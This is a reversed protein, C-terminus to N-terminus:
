NGWSFDQSVTQWPLIDVSMHLFYLTADDKPPNVPVIEINEGPLGVGLGAIGNINLKYVHNRVIAYLDETREIGKTYYGYGNTYKLVRMANDPSNKLKYWGTWKSWAKLTHTNSAITKGDTTEPTLEDNDPDGGMGIIADRESAVVKFQGADAIVWFTGNDDCIETEGKKCTYKGMVVLQPRTKDDTKWGTGEKTRDARTEFRYTVQANSEGIQHPFIYKYADAEAKVSNYTETTLNVPVYGVTPTFTQDATAWQKLSSNLDDYDTLHKILYGNPRTNNIFAYEPVFSITADIKNANEGTYPNIAGDTLTLNNIIKMKAVVRELNIMVAKTQSAEMAEEKTSFLNDNTVASYWTDKYNDDKNYHSASSMVFDKYKGQAPTMEKCFPVNSGNNNLALTKDHLDDYGLENWADAHNVICGVGDVPEPLKVVYCNIGSHSTDDGRDVLEVTSTADATDGAKLTRCFYEDGTTHFIFTIKSISSEDVNDNKVAESDTARTEGTNLAITLYGIKGETPDGGNEGESLPADSACSGLLFLSSAFALGYIKKM